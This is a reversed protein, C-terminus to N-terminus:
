LGIMGLGIHLGIAAGVIGVVEGIAELATIWM